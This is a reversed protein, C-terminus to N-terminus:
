NLAINCGETVRKLLTQHLILKLKTGRARYKILFLILRWSRTTAQVVSLVFNVNYEQRVRPCKILPSILRCHRENDTSCYGACVNDITRIRVDEHYKRLSTGRTESEM